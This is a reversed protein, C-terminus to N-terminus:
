PEFQGEIGSDNRAACNAAGVVASRFPKPWSTISLTRSATVSAHVFTTRCAYSPPPLSEFYSSSARTSSAASTTRMRSEPTPMGLWPAVRGVCFKPKPKQERHHARRRRADIDHRTGATASFDNQSETVGQARVRLLPVAPVIARANPITGRDENSAHRWPRQSRPTPSYESLSTCSGSPSAPSPTQSRRCCWALAM